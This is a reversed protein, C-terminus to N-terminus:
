YITNETLTENGDIIRTPRLILPYLLYSYMMLPTM